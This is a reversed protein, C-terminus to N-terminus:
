MDFIHSFFSKLIPFLCPYAFRYEGKWVFDIYLFGDGSKNQVSKQFASVFFFFSSQWLCVLMFIYFFTFPQGVHRRKLIQLYLFFLGLLKMGFSFIKRKNLFTFSQRMNDLDWFVYWETKGKSLAPRVEFTPPNCPRPTEGRSDDRRSEQCFPM